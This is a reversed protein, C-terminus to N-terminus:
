LDREYVFTVADSGSVRNTFGMREYLHRAVADPEDVGIEIHSAGRSRAREVVAEMLRGGVGRGREAPLVYLEALYCEEAASWLAPRFRLVAVAVPEPGAVLVETDGGEVLTRLRAAL